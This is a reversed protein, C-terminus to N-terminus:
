ERREKAAFWIAPEFLFYFILMWWDFIALTVLLGYGTINVASKAFLSGASYSKLFYSTMLSLAILFFASIFTSPIQYPVGGATAVADILAKLPYDLTTNGTSFTGTATINDSLFDPGAGVAFPPAEPESTPQFLTLTSTVDADSSTTRFSPTGVIGNVTGTFTAAYEWEWHEAPVGGVTIDIGGIYVANFTWGNANNPVSAGDLATTSVAVGDVTLTLNTSDASVTVDHEAESVASSVTVSPPIAITNSGWNSAASLTFTGPDESAASALKYASAVGAGFATGDGKELGGSYGSPYGTATFDSGGTTDRGGSVAFWLYQNSGAVPTLLPPNPNVSSGTVTTGAVPTGGGVIRHSTHASTVAGTTTITVSAGEGGNSVKHFVAIKGEGAGFQDNFLQTWGAPTNVTTSQRTAFLIMLLNGSALGAPLNVVHSTNVPSTLSNNTAAVVAPISATLVGGAYTAFFADPKSINATSSIWTDTLTISFNAYPELFTDNDSVALGTSGPFYAIKGGTVNKMYLLYNTTSSAGLNGAWFVWPNTGYGPMFAVDAGATNQVAANTATANLFGGAIFDATDAGSLNSSVSTTATGTNTTTIVGYFDANSVDSSFVPVASLILLVLLAALLFRKM